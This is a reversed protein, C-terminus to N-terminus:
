KPVGIHLFAFVIGCLASAAAIASFGWRVMTASQQKKGDEVALSLVITDLKADMGKLLTDQGDVRRELSSVREHFLGVLYDHNKINSSVDDM